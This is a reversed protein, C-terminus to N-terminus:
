SGNGDERGALPWEVRMCAGGSGVTVATISGDHDEVIRRVIALGLGTGSSRTTFEPEFIRDAEEPLGPGQDEVEILARGQDTRIRLAIRGGSGMAEVANKFLNSLVQRLQGEDADLVADGELEFGVDEPLYLRSVERAVGALAVPRRRPAPLRGLASFEEALRQLNRTEEEIAGLSEAVVADESRRRARHVALHIPTLPNKIEHALRRAIGQWAALRESRRLRSESEALQGTMENFADELERVEDVGRTQVEFERDGATVRRTAEALDALPRVLRNTLAASVLLALLVSFLLVGAAVVLARGRAIQEYFLGLQRIGAAGQGAATLRAALEPELEHFAVRRYGEGLNVVEFLLAAEDLRGRGALSAALAARGVGVGSEEVEGSPGFGVWGFRPAELAEADSARRSLERQRVELVERALIVAADVSERLGPAEALRGLDSTEQWTVLGVTLAPLLSVALLTLFLRRRLGRTRWVLLGFALLASTTVVVAVWGFLQDL